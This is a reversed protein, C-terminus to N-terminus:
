KENDEKLIQAIELLREATDQLYAEICKRRKEVQITEPQWYECKVTNSMRKNSERLSLNTNICHMCGGVLYFTGNLNAYHKVFFACNRCNNDITEKKM